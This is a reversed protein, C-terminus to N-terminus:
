RCFCLSILTMITQKQDLMMSRKLKQAKELLNITYEKAQEAYPQAGGKNYNMEPTDVM